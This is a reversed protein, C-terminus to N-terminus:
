RRFGELGEKGSFVLVVVEVINRAVAEPSLARLHTELLRENSWMIQESQVDLLMGRFHSVVCPPADLQATGEGEVIVARSADARVRCEATSQYVVEGFLLAGQPLASAEKLKRLTILEINQAAVEPSYVFHHVLADSFQWGDEYVEWMGAEVLQQRFAEPSAVQFGVGELWTKTALQYAGLTAEREEDDMGMTASAYFPIMVVDHLSAGQFEPRVGVVEPTSKCGVGSGMVGLMMLILSGSARTGGRRLM